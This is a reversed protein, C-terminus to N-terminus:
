GQNTCYYFGLKLHGLALINIYGAMGMVLGKIYKFMKLRSELTTTNVHLV